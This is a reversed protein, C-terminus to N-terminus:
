LFLTLRRSVRGLAAAQDETSTRFMGRSEVEFGTAAGRSVAHKTSEQGDATCAMIRAARSAQKGHRRIAAIADIGDM